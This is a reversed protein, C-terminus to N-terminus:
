QRCKHKCQEAYHKIDILVNQVRTGIQIGTNTIFTRVM